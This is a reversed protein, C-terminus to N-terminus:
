VTEGHCHRAVHEISFYEFAHRESKADNREADANQTGVMSDAAAVAACFFSGPESYLSSRTGAIVGCCDIALM